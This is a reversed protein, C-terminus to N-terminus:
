PVGQSAAARLLSELAPSRAEGARIALCLACGPREALIPLLSELHPYSDFEDALIFHVGEMPAPGALVDEDPGDPAAAEEHVCGPLAAISLCLLFLLHDPRRM